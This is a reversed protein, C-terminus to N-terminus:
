VYQQEMKMLQQYVNFMTLRFPSSASGTNSTQLFEGWKGMCQTAYEFNYQQNEFVSNPAKIIAKRLVNNVMISGLVGLSNGGTSEAELLLYPWLPLQEISIKRGNALIINGLESKGFNDLPECNLASFDRNHRNLHKLANCFEVGNALKAKEGAQLNRCIVSVVPSNIQSQVNKLPLSIKSDLQLAPIYKKTGHEFFHAWNVVKEPTLRKGIQFLNGTNTDVSTRTKLAYGKRVMSHGFRFAAHSFYFPLDQDDFPLNVNPTTTSSFYYSFINQDSLAALFNEIVVLQFTKTVLERAHEFSNAIKARILINHLRLWLVHLQSILQNEDNRPEPILATHRGNQECRYFDFGTLSHQKDVITTLKFYGKNDISQRVINKDRLDNGYLSDLNLWPQVQRQEASHKTAPVIDHAILQGIYTLGAPIKSADSSGLTMAIAIAKSESSVRDM